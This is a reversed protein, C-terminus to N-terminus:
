RFLPFPGQVRSLNRKHSPSWNMWLILLFMVQFHWGSSHPTVYLYTTMYLARGRLTSTSKTEYLSASSLSSRPRPFALLLEGSYLQVPVQPIWHQIEFWWHRNYATRIHAARVGARHLHFHPAKSHDWLLRRLFGGATQPHSRSLSGVHWTVDSNVCCNCTLSVGLRAGTAVLITVPRGARGAVRDRGGGKITSLPFFKQNLKQIGKTCPMQPQCLPLSFVTDTFHRSVPDRGMSFLM